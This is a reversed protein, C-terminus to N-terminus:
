TLHLLLYGIKFNDVKFRLDTGLTWINTQSTIDKLLVDGFISSTQVDELEKHSSTVALFTLIIHLRNQFQMLWCSLVKWHLHVWFPVCVRHQVTTLHIMTFKSHSIYSGNYTPTYSPKSSLKTVCVNYRSFCYCWLSSCHGISYTVISTAM